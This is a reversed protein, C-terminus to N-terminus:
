QAPQAPVQRWPANCTQVYPYYAGSEDCYYWSQAPAAGPPPLPPPSPPPAAYVPAPAPQVVIPQAVYTPYPYVPQPYWYWVGDVVWWWGLRDGHWQHFWAGGTWLGLEFTTFLHFDRGHFDRHEHRDHDHFDRDHRDHDHRDHDHHDDGHHDDAWTPLALAALIPMALLWRTRPKM